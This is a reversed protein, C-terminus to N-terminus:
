KIGKLMNTLLYSASLNRAVGNSIKYSYTINESLEVDFCYNSYIKSNEEELKALELDHTAILASMNYQTIERLFVISGKLKDRSNTGKLIEDLIILTLEHSRIHQILSKLRILEASFFSIDKSLDDTTRMSTFLTAVSFKFSQACVPVGNCALVYNVGIARLFTSKGAMNAGTVIAVRKKGLTFSNPVAKGYDLFPHYLNIAQFFDKADDPLIEAVVNDPHNFAYTGWSVLVDMEAISYLWQEVDSFYTIKWFRVKKILFVDFLILGNLLVYLIPSSRQDFANLIKSLQQFAKLCNKGEFLNNQLLSLRESKFVTHHLHELVDIYSTFEKHIKQVNLDAITLTKLFLSSCCLNFLFMGVFYHWTLLGVIGMFLFLVTLAVCVYPIISKIFYCSRRDEMFFRSIVTFDTTIFPHAMFRIRWDFLSALEEIAIQNALIEKKDHSLNMLRYALKDSGIQTICRNIRHFVSNNGFLDLDYSYEHQLDKYKEGSPLSSFDGGLCSIERKCVSKILELQAIRKQYINDLAYVILYAVFLLISLVIFLIHSYRFYLFCSVVSSFFFLCKGFLCFNGKKKLLNIQIQLEEIKTQYTNYIM